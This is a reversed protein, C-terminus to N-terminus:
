PEPRAMPRTQQHSRGAPSAISQRGPPLVPALPRGPGASATGAALASVDNSVTFANASFGAASLAAKGETRIRVDSSNSGFRDEMDVRALPTLGSGIRWTSEPTQTWRSDVVRERQM